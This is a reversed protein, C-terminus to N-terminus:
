FGRYMCRFGTVPKTINRNNADVPIYHEPCAYADVGGMEEIERESLAINGSKGHSIELSGGHRGNLSVWTVYVRDTCNNPYAYWNYFKPDYFAGTICANANGIYRPPQAHLLGRYFVACFFIMAIRLAKPM